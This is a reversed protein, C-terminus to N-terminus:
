TSGEEGLLGGLEVRDLLSSLFLYIFHQDFVGLKIQISKDFHVSLVNTDFSTDPPM